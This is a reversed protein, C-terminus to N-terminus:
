RGSDERKLEFCLYMMQGVHHHLHTACRLFINFRNGADDERLATYAKSWDEPSQARIAKVVVGIAEDFHRLIETKPARETETFERNRDRVYGTRAVEAGIYYNLNGTLHLVLHGFSNGFAFPKRWFQEESLPTALDRVKGALETYRAALGEAVTAPLKEM